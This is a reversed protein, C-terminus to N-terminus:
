SRKEKRKEYWEDVIGRVLDGIPKHDGGARYKEEILAYHVEERLEICVGVM